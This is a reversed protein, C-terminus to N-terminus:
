APEDIMGIAGIEQIPTNLAEYTNIFEKMANERTEDTAGQDILGYMNDGGRNITKAIKPIDRLYDGKTLDEPRGGLLFTLLHKHLYLSLGKSRCYDLTEKFTEILGREEGIQRVDFPYPKFENYHEITSWDYSVDSNFLLKVGANNGKQAMMLKMASNNNVHIINKFWGYEGYEHILSKIIDSDGRHLADVFKLLPVSNASYYFAIDDRSHIMAKQLEINNSTLDILWKKTELDGSHFASFDYASIMSELLTPHDAAVTEYLWKQTEIKSSSFARFNQGSIMKQQLELNDKAVTGYLWQKTPLDDSYCFAQFDYASIMEEQLGPKGLAVTDYLWQKTALDGFRFASFDYASIMLESLTPHDEKVKEYLWQKSALDSYSFAGFDSASIMKKQLDRDDKAVTEYLWQKTLLDGQRFSCFGLASIMPESLTPHDADVTEYLWQKTLLDGDRFSEFDNASIMKKQLDQDDSAVKKYFSQKIPLGGLRFAKICDTTNLDTSTNKM